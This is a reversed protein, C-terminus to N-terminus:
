RPLVCLQYPKPANSVFSTVLTISIDKPDVLPKLTFNQLITTLLLFLEMRALGEGVCIRKGASFPMFFDSKKFAGNEDLFHGPNFQEPKPFERSDGLVSQLAPFITTGKPIVYQRFHTDRTVAHPVSLPVLNVFRQIEHIVADTYPMQSRDAMCPSRSRGIVRDIEEHVKEEIDPYKLLILLGHRLTTSSTGTGALFLDITSRVLNETNFESQGNQQEQEMKILFADIFDRPCSLDLSEKHMKVRELVFIRLEESNKLLEQHPGPIYDMLTPFFNYLQGLLSRFVENNEETLKILTLFKQDEYDFRDGFVISCIINSVAHTLPITPDFPREHTNRLREVLFRAEEQIREEISKKGMGFNRLTTLAFRRLQKWREGNSFIIGAGKILKDALALKGRGSFEDGQDILAEKVAEQGYLVVVRLSGLYITFVPGYKASLEHISQPLNRVNLQLMNGIIPFAVPGPPLKGSGSMKRWASFFLLCSVCIVLFVTTAGLPDM